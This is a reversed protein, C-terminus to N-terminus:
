FLFHGHKFWSAIGKGVEVGSGWQAPSRGVELRMGACGAGAASEM